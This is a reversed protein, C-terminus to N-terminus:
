GQFSPHLRQFVFAQSPEGCRRNPLEFSIVIYLALNFTEHASM